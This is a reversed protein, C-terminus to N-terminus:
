PCPLVASELSPLVGYDVSLTSPGAKWLKKV